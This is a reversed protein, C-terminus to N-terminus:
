IEMVRAYEESLAQADEPLLAIFLYKSFERIYEILAALRESDIAELSDLLLFPVQEHVDHALYGALAFILGTVERESESLHDVTDEYAAGSETTRVVHLEFAAQNVKKRGQRQEREVRELWIRDLNDYELIDLVTEMHTNFEEITAEEIREIRTRLDSLEAEIDALEEEKDERDELRKEISSIQENVRDLDNELRGMEYELQNAEKHLDLLQSYDEAELEQVEAEIAEVEDTLENRSEQLRDINDEAEEIEREVDRLRREIEDRQQQTQELQRRESQLENIEDEVENLKGVKSQSRERLQDITAEIQDAEVESGCTWCSVTEEDLLQDTLEGDTGSSEFTDFDSEDLMEENFQIVNQLENIEAQLQQKRERRGELQDSIDAIRGAPMETMDELEQELDQREQKLQTLSERETELDYRVDDIEGRKTRLEELKNELEEKVERKEQVDSDAAELEAEKEELDAKTEAIESQIEQRREELDPLQRKKEDIAEIERELKTRDDVLEDIRAEIRDTDVPRIIIDRLDEGLAVAQRADNSELLFAFLEALEADEIYPDGETVLTGAQYSLNRTYTEEGLTMEVRAKDADGKIKVGDGGLAAMLSQLFSTRNTANRGELITVGPQFQVTAEEIGGICEVTIEGAKEKTEQKSM